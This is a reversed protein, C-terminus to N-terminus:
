RLLFCVFEWSGGVRKNKMKLVYIQNQKFANIKLKKYITNLYIVNFSYDYFM